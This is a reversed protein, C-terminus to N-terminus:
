KVFFIKIVTLLAMAALVLGALWTLRTILDRKKVPQHKELQTVRKDMADLQRRLRANEEALHEQDESMGELIMTMESSFQEILDELDGGKLTKVASSIAKGPVKLARVIANQPKCDIADTPIEGPTLPQADTSQLMDLDHAQENM